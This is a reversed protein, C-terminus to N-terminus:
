DIIKTIVPWIDVQPLFLPISSGVKVKYDNFFYNVGDQKLTRLRLNLFIDKKIPDENILVKGSNTTFIVRAPEIRRSIVEAIVMGQNDRMQDGVKIADAVWPDLGQTGPFIDREHIVRTEVVKEEWFREDTIGEIFTVLGSIKTMGLHLDIAGGIELPSHNYTIKRTRSDYGARVLVQLYTVRGKGQEEFNEVELVEAIKRGLSDYEADEKKLAGVAWYSPLNEEWGPRPIVRVEIQVWKERKGLLFLIALVAVLFVAVATWDFFTLRKILRGLRVWSKKM